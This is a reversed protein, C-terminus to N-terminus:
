VVLPCGRVMHTDPMLAVWKHLFPLNSLNGAQELCGEEIDERSDLWVKIPFKNKKQKDYIVFVIIEERIGSIWISGHSYKKIMLFFNRVQCM